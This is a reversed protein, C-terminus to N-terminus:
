YFVAYGEAVGVAQSSQFCTRSSLNSNCFWLTKEVGDNDLSQLFSGCEISVPHWIRMDDEAEVGDVIRTSSLADSRILWNFDVSLPITTSRCSYWRLHWCEDSRSTLSAISSRLFLTGFSLPSNDLFNALQAAESSAIAAMTPGRKWAPLGTAGITNADIATIRFTHIQQKAAKEMIQCM